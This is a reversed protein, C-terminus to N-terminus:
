RMPSLAPQEPLDRSAVLMGVTSIFPTYVTGEHDSASTTRVSWCSLIPGAILFLNVRTQMSSMHVQRICKRTSNRDRSTLTMNSLPRPGTPTPVRLARPTAVVQRFSRSAVFPAEDVITIPENPFPASRGSTRQRCLYRRRRLFQRGEIRPLSM